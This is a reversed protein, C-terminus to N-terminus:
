VCRHSMEEPKDKTEMYRFQLVDCENKNMIDVLVKYRDRICM